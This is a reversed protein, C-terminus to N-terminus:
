SFHDYGRPLEAGTGPTTLEGIRTLAVDPFRIPWRALLGGTENPSVAFLLEYDEGDSLAQAESVGAARPLHERDVRFGVGSALALRPLDAGLGDSLDMMAHVAFQKALWRAESLRPRFNLHRGSALSGGLAGTVFLADGAQGGSRLCCRKASVEGTLSVTIMAPGDTRATEGGVVLVGFEAACRGLGRYIGRARATPTEAPLAITVLAHLPRGACAAIDSLPRALAKWGVQAAPSSALFHRGEIVCDSKLLLYKGGRLADRVVACDDGDTADAVLSKAMLVAPTLEALLRRVLRDEGFGALTRPESM